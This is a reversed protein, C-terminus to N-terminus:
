RFHDVLMIDGSPDGEQSYLIWRGDPSISLGDGFDKDAEFVPRIQRSGFDFYRLSRPSEAPVFYIGGPVLAWIGSDIVRPLGDVESETGPQGSRATKKLTSNDAHSAFYVTKGDFSEQPSVGDIDKSLAIASGGSAPCRYVGMRGPQNSRFYIWQGDRSWHPRIVDSINTILKRPKREAVDAVYIEYRGHPLSDFAIRSGDPSWQPSGSADNPNSIQELNAAMRM